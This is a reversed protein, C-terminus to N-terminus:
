PWLIKSIVSFLLTLLALVISIIMLIHNRKERQERKLERDMVKQEEQDIRKITEELNKEATADGHVDKYLTVDDKNAM